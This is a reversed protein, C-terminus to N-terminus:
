QPAGTAGAGVTVGGHIHSRLSIGDSTVVDGDATMKAGSGHLLEGDTKLEISGNDNSIIVSGDAKLWVENVAVGAANRAYIRKEGATAKPTNITDAYGAPAYVGSQRTKVLLAYDTPLPHSDDGADAFHQGTINAGGGPDVKVDSFRVGEVVRRTFSKVQAILGMAYGGMAEPIKGEFSGPLVLVMTASESDGTKILSVSRIVFEYENYIMAGPALLKITRNPIWLDGQPDRWGAVSINYSVVSAFMRGTKAEVASKADAGLTDDATFTFPRIIGKLRSNSVTFQSGSVGMTTPQIGTVHSYYEQEKYQPTVSTLPSIGEQLRAISSGPSASRQFLLAGAFTSSIVLNRQRALDALFQLVKAGPEIAVRDFIAGQDVTFKVSLGFPACVTAAIEKLGLGNFELPFSSAPLTCDNLVGPKSYGTVSVTRSEPGTAPKPTLMTGTFLLRGGVTISLGQFSLPRFIERFKANNVEFPASFEIADLADMSLSITVSDWFRFREGGVSLAVENISDATTSAATVAPADPKDPIAIIVGPTLPEALGPNSRVILPSDVESGYVKRAIKDFTDGTIITYPTSM